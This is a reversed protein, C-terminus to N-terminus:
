GSWRVLASAWTMGAGYGSFLVLDAGARIGDAVTAIVKLGSEGEPLPAWRGPVGWVPQESDIIQTNVLALSGLPQVVALERREHYTKWAEAEATATDTVTTNLWEGRAPM